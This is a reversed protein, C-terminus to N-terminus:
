FLVERKRALFGFVMQTVDTQLWRVTMAGLSVCEPMRGQVAAITELVKANILEASDM